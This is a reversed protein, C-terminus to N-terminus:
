RLLDRPAPRAPESRRWAPLHALAETRWDGFARISSRLLLAHAAGLFAPARAVAPANRGQAQGVGLLTKEDRFNVEVEWRALYAAILEAAPTMQDTTILFAPERYLLQSVKRLRYGAAKLIIRRLPRAQTVKPWCRLPGERDHLTRGQGAVFVETSHWALNPDRLSELPTPLAPGYKRAGRRQDPPLFACFQADKRVRAVADTREPLGQFFTRNSYGGEVGETLWCQRGGPQRDLHDRCFRM